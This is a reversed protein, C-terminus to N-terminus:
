FTWVIPSTQIAGVCVLGPPQRMGPVESPHPGEDSDWPAADEVLAYLGAATHCAALAAHVEPDPVFWEGHHRYPKLQRHLAFEVPAYGDFTTLIALRLALRHAPRDDAPQRERSLRDQHPRQRGARCLGQRRPSPPPNVETPWHWRKRWSPRGSGMGGAALVGGLATVPVPQDTVLIQGAGIITVHWAVPELTPILEAIAHDTRGVYRHNGLPGNSPLPTADNM